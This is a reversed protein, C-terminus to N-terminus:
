HWMSGHMDDLENDKSIGTRQHIQAQAEESHSKMSLLQLLRM